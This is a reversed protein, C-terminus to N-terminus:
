AIYALILVFATLLVAVVIAALVRTAWVEGPSRRAAVTAGARARAASATRLPRPVAPEEDPGDDDRHGNTAFLGEFRAKLAQLASSIAPEPASTHPIEEGPTTTPRSGARLPGPADLVAAELRREGTTSSAPAPPPMPQTAPGTSSDGRAPSDDATAGASADDPSAGPSADDATAGASADDPTAGASADDIVGASSEDPAPM